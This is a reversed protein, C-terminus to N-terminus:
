HAAPGTRLDGLCWEGGAARMVVVDTTCIDGPGRSEVGHSRWQELDVVKVHAGIVAGLNEPTHAQPDIGALDVSEHSRVAAAFGGEGRGQEARGLVRHRRARDAEAAVVDGVPGGVHPALGAHEQGELVGLLEGAHRHEVEQALGDLGAGSGLGRHELEALPHQRPHIAEAHITGEGVPVEVLAEGAALLLAVLDELHRQQLGLEGDEVLGVGPRSM